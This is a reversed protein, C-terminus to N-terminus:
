RSSAQWGDKVILLYEDFKMILEEREADDIEQRKDTYSNKALCLAKDVLNLLHLFSKNLSDEVIRRLTNVKEEYITNDSEWVKSSAEFAYDFLEKCLETSEIMNYTMAIAIADVQHSMAQWYEFPSEVSMKALIQNIVIEKKTISLLQTNVRNKLFNYEEAIKNMRGKINTLEGKITAKTEKNNKEIKDNQSKIESKIEGKIELVNIIQYGIVMAVAISLVEVASEIVNFDLEFGGVIAVGFIVISMVLIIITEKMIIKNLVLEDGEKVPKKERKGTIM